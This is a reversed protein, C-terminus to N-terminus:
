RPQLTLDASAAVPGTGFDFRTGPDQITLATGNRQFTATRTAGDQTFRINSQDVTFTGTGVVAERDPRRLESRFTGDGRFDLDVAGGEAIVDVQNNADAADTFVAETATFNGVIGEQPTTGDDDCATTLAAAFILAPVMAFRRILQTRM